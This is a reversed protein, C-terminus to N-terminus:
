LVHVKTVWLCMAIDWSFHMNYAISFTYLFHFCARRQQIVVIVARRSKNLNVPISQQEFKATDVAPRVYRHRNRQDSKCPNVEIRSSRFLRSNPSVPGPKNGLFNLDSNEGFLFTEPHSTEFKEGGM